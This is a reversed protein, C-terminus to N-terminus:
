PAGTCTSDCLPLGDVAGAAVRIGCRQCRGPKRKGVIRSLTACAAAGLITERDPQELPDHVLRADEALGGLGEGIIEGVMAYATPEVLSPIGQSITRGTPLHTVDVECSDGTQRPTVAWVGARYLVPVVKGEPRGEFAIRTTDGNAKAENSRTNRGM